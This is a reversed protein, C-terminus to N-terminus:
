PTLGLDSGGLCFRRATYTGIFDTTKERKRPATDVKRVADDKKGWAEFAQSVPARDKQRVRLFRGFLQFANQLLRAALFPTLVVRPALQFEDVAM